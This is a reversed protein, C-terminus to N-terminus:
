LLSQLKHSGNRRDALNGAPARESPLVLGREGDAGLRPCVLGALLM